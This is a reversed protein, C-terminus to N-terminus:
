SSVKVKNPHISDVENFSDVYPDMFAKFNDFICKKHIMKLYKTNNNLWNNQKLCNVFVRCTDFYSQAICTRKFRFGKRKEPASNLCVRLDPKKNKLSCTAQINYDKKSQSNLIGSRTYETYNFLNVLRNYERTLDNPNSKSYIDFTFFM